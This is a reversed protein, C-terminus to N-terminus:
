GDADYHKTTVHGLPDTTTTVQGRANHGYATTYATACGCGPVNGKPSVSSMLWGITNYGYTSTTTQSVAPSSGVLPTSRQTLNGSADYASTTTVGLADTKTLPENFSNYTATTQRGLPDRMSLQ